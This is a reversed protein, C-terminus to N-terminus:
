GAREIALRSLGPLLRQLGVLPADHFLAITWESGGRTRLRLPHGVAESGVIGLQPAEGALVADFEGPRVVSADLHRQELVLQTDGDGVPVSPV